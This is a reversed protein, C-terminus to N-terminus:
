PYFRLPPRYAGDVCYASIMECDRVCSEQTGGCVDSASQCALSCNRPDNPLRWREPDRARNDENAYAQLEACLAHECTSYFGVCKRGFPEFSGDCTLKGQKCKQVLHTLEHIVTTKAGNDFNVSSICLEM